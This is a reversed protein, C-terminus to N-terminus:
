LRVSKDLRNLLSTLVDFSMMQSTSCVQRGLADLQCWTVEVNKIQDTAIKVSSERRWRDRAPSQGVKGEAM